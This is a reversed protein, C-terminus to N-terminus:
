NKDKTIKKLKESLRLRQFFGVRSIFLVGDLHDIEHQFVRAQLGKAEINLIKGDTDQAEILVERARRINLRFGPLSLCGEEEVDTEASMKLIKPNIFAQPGKETQILIIRGSAGVQNAALGAGDKQEIIKKMEEILLLTEATIKQVEQCRKRLVPDPYKRLTVKEM